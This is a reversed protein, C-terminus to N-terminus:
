ETPLMVTVLEVNVLQVDLSPPAIKESQLTVIM